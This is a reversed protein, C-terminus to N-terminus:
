NEIYPHIYDNFFAVFIVSSFLLAMEAVRDSGYDSEPIYRVHITTFLTLLFTSLVSFDTYQLILPTIILSALCLPDRSTNYIFNSFDKSIEPLLKDSTKTTSIAPKKCSSSRDVSGEKSEITKNSKSKEKVINIFSTAESLVLSFAGLLLFINGHEIITESFGKIYPLFCVSAFLGCMESIRDSAYDSEPIYQAYITTFLTLFCTPLVSFNNYQLILPTGVFAAVTPNVLKNFIENSFSRIKDLSLSIIGRGTQPCFVRNKVVDACDLGYPSDSGSVPTPNSNRSSIHLPTPVRTDHDPSETRELSFFRNNEDQIIM